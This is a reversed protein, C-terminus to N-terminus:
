VKFFVQFHYFLVPHVSYIFWESPILLSCKGNSARAPSQIFYILLHLLQPIKGRIAELRAKFRM